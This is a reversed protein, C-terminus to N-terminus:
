ATRTIIIQGNLKRGGNVTYRRGSFFGYRSTCAQAYTLKVEQMNTHWSEGVEMSEITKLVSIQGAYTGTTHRVITM